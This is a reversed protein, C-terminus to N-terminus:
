GVSRRARHGALAGLLLGGLLMAWGLPTQSAVPFLMPVVLQTSIALLAVGAVTGTGARGAWYGAVVLVLMAWLLSEVAWALDPRPSRPALISYLMEPALRFSTAVERGAGSSTGTIRGPGHEIAFEVREGPPVDFMPGFNFNPTRLRVDAAKIRYALLARTGVRNLVVVLRNNGETRAPDVDIVTIVNERWAIPPGVTIAGQLSLRGAAFEGEVTSPLARPIASLEAGNVRAALAQGNLAPADPMDGPFRGRWGGSGADTGIAWAGFTWLAAFGLAAALGLRRAARPAPGLLLPLHPALSAGLWTGLSNTVVDSLSADRGTIVWYQMSEVFLALFLGFVAARGPALGALGLALGLPLLMLINQFVDQVGQEGCVLCTVPSLSARYAQEPLPWLTLLLVLIVAAAAAWRAAERVPTM